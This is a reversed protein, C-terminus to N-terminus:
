GIRIRLGDLSIADEVLFGGAHLLAKSTRSKKEDIRIADDSLFKEFGFIALTEGSVADDGLEEWLEALFNRLGDFGRVELQEELLRIRGSNGASTYREDGFHTQRGVNVDVSGARLSVFRDFQHEFRDRLELELWNYIGCGFGEVQWHDFFLNGDEFASESDRFVDSDGGAGLEPSGEAFVALGESDRAGQFVLSAVLGDAVAWRGDRDFPLETDRGQVAGPCGDFNPM